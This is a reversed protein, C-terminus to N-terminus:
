DRNSHRRQFDSEIENQKMRKKMVTVIARKFEDLNDLIWQLREDNLKM